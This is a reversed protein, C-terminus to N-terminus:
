KKRNKREAIRDEISEAQEAVVRSFASYADGVAGRVSSFFGGLREQVEPWADTALEM